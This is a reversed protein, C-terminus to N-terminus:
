PDIEEWEEARLIQTAVKLSEEPPFWYLRQCCDCYLWNVSGHMKIVPIKISSPNLDLAIKMGKEPFSARLAGCGYQFDTPGHIKSIGEEVVTDWNLNLFGSSRLEISQFFKELQKWGEPLERKAREYEARLMGVIRTILARRVKRLESPQFAFGLNHGSNAALDICTFIDELEPWYVAKASELHGFAKAIFQRLFPVVVRTSDKDDGAHLLRETFENQLPLGANKSFGAGLIFLNELTYRKM